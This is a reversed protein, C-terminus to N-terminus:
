DRAEMVMTAKDESAKVYLLHLRVALPSRTDCAKWNLSVLLLRVFANICVGESENRNDFAGQARRLRKSESCGTLKRQKVCSLKRSDNGGHLRERILTKDM